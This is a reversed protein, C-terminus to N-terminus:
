DIGKFPQHYMPILTDLSDKEGAFLRERGVSAVSYGSSGSGPPPLIVAGPRKRLTEHMAVSGEGLFCCPDQSCAELVADEMCLTVPSVEKWISAERRFVARYYENKRSPILVCAMSLPEPVRPLYAQMTPVGVLPLEAGMAMGKATGLGIRLGTFSGPGTAVAIGEVEALTLESLALLQQIVETLMESHRNGKAVKMEGLFGQACALGVSLERTSTDIGLVIM